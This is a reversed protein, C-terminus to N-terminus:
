HAASKRPRLQLKKKLSTGCDSVNLNLPLALNVNKFTKAKAAANLLLQFAPSLKM